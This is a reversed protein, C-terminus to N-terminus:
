LTLLQQELCWIHKNGEVIDLYIRTLIPVKEVFLECCKEVQTQLVPDVTIGIDRLITDESLMKVYHLAAGYLAIILFHAMVKVGLKDSPIVAISMSFLQKEFFSEDSQLFKNKTLSVIEPFSRGTYIYDIATLVVAARKLYEPRYTTNAAIVYGLLESVKKTLDKVDASSVSDLNEQYMKSRNRNVGVATYIMSVIVVDLRFQKRAMSESSSGDNPNNESHGIADCTMLNAGSLLARSVKNRKVNNDNNDNNYTNGRKM